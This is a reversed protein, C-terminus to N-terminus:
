RRPPTAPSRPASTSASTLASGHNGHWSNRVKTARRINQMDNSDSEADSDSDDPLHFENWPPKAYMKGSEARVVYKLSEMEMEMRMWMAMAMALRWRVGVQKGIAGGTGSLMSNIQAFKRIIALTRTPSSTAITCQFVNISYLLEIV